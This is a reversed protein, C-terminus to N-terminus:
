EKNMEKYINMAITNMDSEGKKTIRRGGTCLVELKGDDNELQIQIVEILGLRQLEKLCFRIIKGTAIKKHPKASGRREKKGFHNRLYNVGIGSRHLFVQRGISALKNNKMKAVQEQSSGTTITHLWNM